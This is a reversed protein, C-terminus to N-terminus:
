AKHRIYAPDDFYSVGHETNAMLLPQCWSWDIGVGLYTHRTTFGGARDVSVVVADVSKWNTKKPNYLNWIPIGISTVGFTVKDGVRFDRLKETM